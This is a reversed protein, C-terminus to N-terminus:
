ADRDARERCAACVGHVEIAVREIAFDMRRASDEIAEGAGGGTAELTEQCARCILFQGVHREAPTACGIYASLSALRHVLGQGILFDLARYVTPPAVSGRESRLAEMVEYAGVPTHSRWVVELVRRRLPTLRAGRTACLADASEM